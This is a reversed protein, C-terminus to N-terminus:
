WQTAAPRHARRPDRAAGDPAAPGYRDTRSQAAAPFPRAEVRDEELALAGCADRRAARLRPLRRGAAAPSRRISTRTEVDRVFTRAASARTATPPATPSVWSM